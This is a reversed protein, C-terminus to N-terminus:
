GASVANNCISATHQAQFHIVESSDKSGYFFTRRRPIIFCQTWILSHLEVSMRRVNFYSLLLTKHAKESVSFRM